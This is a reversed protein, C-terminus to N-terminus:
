PTQTTEALSGVSRGKAVEFRERFDNAEGHHQVDAVRKRQPIDFVKKVFAAYLDARLGNPEPPVTKARHERGLDALSPDIAHARTDLVTPMEVLDEHLDIALYVGKPLGHVMFAFHELAVDCLRPIAGGGEFEQLFRQFPVAPWLHNDCVPQPGVAGRQLIKTPAHGSSPATACCCPRSSGDAM